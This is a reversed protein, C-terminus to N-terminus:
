KMSSGRMVEMFSIIHYSTIYRRRKKKNNMRGYLMGKRQEDGCRRESRRVWQESDVNYQKM